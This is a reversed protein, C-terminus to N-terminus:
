IRVSELVRAPNTRSLRFSFFATLGLSAVGMVVLTFLLSMADLHFAGDFLFWGLGLSMALSLLTGFFSAVTVLVGFEVQFLFFLDKGSTGLLRLLTADWEQILVQRYLISMLVLVGVIWTLSAMVQLALAMKDLVELGKKVLFGVDIISVNAMTAALENQIKGGVEISVGSLDALWTKPADELAGPQLLIFFNPQFTTWRVKRLNIVKGEVDVGQVDFRILDGIKFNMREAYSKEVSLEVPGEGEYRGRFPQGAVISEADSLSERTSLNVGRNRFRMEAEEERTVFGETKAMREYPIGNVELVRARIMPSVHGLEANNQRVVERVKEIQEDQIDFLFYAPPHNRGDGILEYYLGSRIQPILTTLLSGISLAVFTTLLIPQRALYLLGHRVWWPRRVRGLIRFFSWGLAALLAYSFFLSAVFFSGIKYSNAESVSLYWFAMFLPIWLLMSYRTTRALSPNGENFLQSTPIARLVALFPLTVGLSGLTIMVWGKFVSWLSLGITLETRLWPQLLGKLLPLGAGVLLMSAVTTVTAVILIQWAFIRQTGASSIGLANYIAYSKTKQSLWSRVLAAMGFAGLSVGVLAGLGLFDFLMGLSRGADQGAELAHTFRVAPDPIAVKFKDELAQIDGLANKKLKLFWIESVTSGFQILNTEMLGARSVYVKPALSLSRFTQTPDDVVIDRIVFSKGGLEIFEGVKVNFQQAFEPSIWIGRGSSETASDMRLAIDGLAAKENSNELLAQRPRDSALTLRGYFPFAGELGKVQTLRSYTGRTVMSFLEFQRSVDAQPPILNNLAAKEADSFQRRVSIAVDAGLGEQANQGLSSRMGEQFSELLLYGSLAVTLNLVLLALISRGAALERWALKMELKYM